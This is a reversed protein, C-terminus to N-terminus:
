IVHITIETRASNMPTGTGIEATTIYVSAQHDGKELAENITINRLSEGPPVHDSEYLKTGDQLVISFSFYCPNGEPNELAIPLSDTQGAPITWDTFGHITIQKREIEELIGADDNYIGADIQPLWAVSGQNGDRHDSMFNMLIVTCIILLVLWFMYFPARCKILGYLNDEEDKVFGMLKYLKKKSDLCDFTNAGIMLRNDSVPKRLIFFGRVDCDDSGSHRSKKKSMYRIEAKQYKVTKDYCADLERIKINKEM